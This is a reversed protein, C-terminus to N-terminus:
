VERVIAIVRDADEILSADFWRGLCNIRAPAALTSRYAKAPIVVEKAHERFGTGICKLMAEKLTWLRFFHTLREGEPASSFMDMEQQGCIMKLMSGFPLDRKVEVDVGIEGHRSLGIVLLPSSRSWSLAAQEDKSFRPKGFQDRVVSRNPGLLQSTEIAESLLLCSLALERRKVLSIIRMCRVKDDPPLRAILSETSIGRATLSFQLLEFRDAMHWVRRNAYAERLVDGDEPKGREAM